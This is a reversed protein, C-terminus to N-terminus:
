DQMYPKCKVFMDTCTSEPLASSYLEDAARCIATQTCDPADAPKTVIALGDIKRLSSLLARGSTSAALLTSYEPLSDAAADSVGLLSFLIVRNIRANTYKSNYAGCIFEDFNGSTRASNCLREVIGCGDQAIVCGGSRAVVRSQIESPTMLKFFSHVERGINSLAAPALGKSISGEIEILVEDPTHGKIASAGNKEQAIAARIASASPLSDIRLETDNYGLGQRKIPVINMDCGFRNIARIYSIALIDNSLLSVDEGLVEGIADFYSKASGIPSKKQKEKYIEIFRDTAIAQAARQLLAENACESGFSINQIGLSALIHVGAAAFGEASLSSYPFPLELVLDAGGLVACKARIYKDFMALEGRQTFNGSMVCVICDFGMGRLIDIQRKHGMHFPNYECIIGVPKM